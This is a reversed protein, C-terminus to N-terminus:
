AVLERRAAATRVAPDLWAAPAEDFDFVRTSIAGPDFRGHRCMSLVPEAQARVNARGTHFSIGKHYLEALPLGTLPRLHISVSTFLGEPETARLAQVLTAAEGDADVVIEYHNALDCPRPIATAGYRAAEALRREDNDVYDVRGAGMAVALGATYIGIVSALGGMVLVSAGPRAALQPGVARWADLAMDAAGIMALPDAGVPLPVLMADAYPVRVLDAAACGFGGDRNMGYGAGFPVSQCRGTFGRRCNRCTGCSIQSPVIVRQGPRVSRVLDGVDVVEGIMEHGIPEGPRMPALGRVFGVDLDCRGLVLPRVLADLDTEVKVDPVERWEVAGPRVFTLQRM